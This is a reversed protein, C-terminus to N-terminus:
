DNFCVEIREKMSAIIKIVSARDSTVLLDILAYQKTISPQRWGDTVEASFHPASALYQAWKVSGVQLEYLRYPFQKPIIAVIATIFYGGATFYTM